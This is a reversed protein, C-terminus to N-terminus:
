GAHTPETRFAASNLLESGFFAQYIRSKKYLESENRREDSLLYIIADWRLGDVYLFRKELGPEATFLERAAQYFYREADTHKWQKPDTETNEVVPGSLTYLFYLYEAIDRNTRAQKLLECNEPIAQFTVSSMSNDRWSSRIAWRRARRM